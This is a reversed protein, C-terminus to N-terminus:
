APNRFEMGFLPRIWKHRRILYEHILFCGLYTSIVLLLFENAFSLGRRTLWYGMVIIITQHMIYWSFIAQNMYSLVSSPKNLWKQAIGLLAVISFWAFGTNQMGESLLELVMFLQSTNGQAELAWVVCSVVSLFTVLLASPILARRISGWFAKDKALLFGLIFLTFFLQHNAWDGVLAYTLPYDQRLVFYHTSFISIPLTLLWFVSFRSAFISKTVRNGFGNMARSLPRSFPILVLTYVLIYVVYWLHNWTPVSISFDASASIYQLYFGSFSSNIEGKELLELWSQPAVIVLMGFVIPILLTLSRQLTFNGLKSKDIAFRIAVGSIFFLLSLRWPNLLKMVPELTSSVHVSKVHFDWPVYFMGIHYFILIGFAIARLWDLDHRRTNEMKM